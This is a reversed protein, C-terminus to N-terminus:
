ILVAVEKSSMVNVERELQHLEVESLTLADFPIILRCKSTTVLDTVSEVFRLVVEFGNQDILYELGELMIVSEVENEVFEKVAISLQTINTPVICKEEQIHTLWIIPVDVDKINYEEHIHSPHIRSILLGKFEYEILKGFLKFSTDPKEETILYCKGQKFLRHLAPLELKKVRKEARERERIERKLGENAKLLEATREKVRLELEDHAKRLAEEARKRETIDRAFIALREVKGQADFVPYVCHDLVMGEHEDEFCVSEGSRIVEDVRAKRSEALAPSLFDYIFTGILEDASRGLRKAAVENTALISGEDTILMASETPANLLARATEESERLSEEVRKREEEQEINRMAFAIDDAVERFLLQEDAATAMEVPTSVSLIGQVRAGQEMRVAMCARGICTEALPCDACTDAVDEVIVIDSQKLANQGCRTFEGRKMKEVVTSFSKGHGAGAATLFGNNEDVLAIWASYYGRTEILTECVGQIMRDRDKEIAMLQNVDRIARLVANLHTTRAEAAAIRESLAAVVFAIVIFMIARLYDNLNMVAERIFIHSCILMAALFIAVVLGKRKWWLCALIIPTYFFHTFVRGTGLVAHFYYTLLCAVVLLIAMVAINYKEELGEFKIGKINGGWM